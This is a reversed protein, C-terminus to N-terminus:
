EAGGAIVVYPFLARAGDARAADMAGIIVEYPARSSPVLILNEAHPHAHKVVTLAATLGAYDYDDPGCDGGCPLALGEGGAPIGDSNGLLRFGDVEVLISL